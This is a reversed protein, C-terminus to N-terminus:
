GNLEGTPLVRVQGVLALLLRELTSLLELLVAVYTNKKQSLTEHHSVRRTQQVQYLSVKLVHM